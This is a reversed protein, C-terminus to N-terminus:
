PRGPGFTASLYNLIAEREEGSPQTGSPMWGAMKNLERDWQARTLRQQRIMDEGHCTRCASMVQPPAPAAATEVSRAADQVQKVADIGVRPAVNWLYGSPNWEQVLPQSDGSTDRARAMLTYYGENSPMWPFEWQRWGYRTSPGILRTARWSRGADVSVDVATVPGGEGSWAAGRIMTAKGAEIQSRDAPSAIVSKVRLSELPKMADQPIVAGPPVAKGPHRYANKMWWGDFEKDLVRVTTVWKMWSDGAWGPVVARLPFGHQTPLPAGNLEFALLTNQDLAKKVPITRQFDAMAGIPVDAGDFLIHASTSKLGAHKLVDALRVGRWRGNGAAGTSWQIGAVTPEYFSRGNGACELVAVLETAPLQRLDDLTLSVPSSVEGEVRLRWDNLKVAPAYVHTRVFFYEVPTISDAFGSLPMELDQPRVSRVLMDRKVAEAGDWAQARMGFAGCAAAM